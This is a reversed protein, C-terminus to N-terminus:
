WLGRGLAATAQQQKDFPSIMSTLVGLCHRFGQQVRDGQEPAELRHGQSQKQTERDQQDGEGLRRCPGQVGWWGLAVAAVTFGKRGKQHATGHILGGNRVGAASNHRNAAIHHQLPLADAQLQGPGVVGPRGTEAVAFPPPAELVLVMGAETQATAETSDLVEGTIPQSGGSATRLHTGYRVPVAGNRYIPPM